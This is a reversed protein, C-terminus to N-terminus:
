ATKEWIGFDGAEVGVRCIALLEVLNIVLNVGAVVVNNNAGLHDGLAEIKWFEAREAYDLRVGSQAQRVICGLFSCKM